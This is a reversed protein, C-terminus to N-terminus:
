SAIRLSPPLFVFRTGNRSYHALQAEVTVNCHSTAVEPYKTPHGSGMGSLVVAM